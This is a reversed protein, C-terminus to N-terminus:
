RYDYFTRLFEMMVTVTADAFARQHTETDRVGKWPTELQVASITSGDRSGHRETIYGGSFYPDRNPGPNRNSPVAEYGQQEYLAGMSQPGRVLGALSAAASEALSRISSQKWHLPLILSDDPLALQRDVLLYGLELRARPHRHGHLDVLLGKGHQSSVTQKAQDIFSHYEEWMRAAASDDQAAELINHNPDLKRRHVTSVILHPVKGTRSQFARFIAQGLELSNTDYREGTVAIRDPLTPPELIGGHPVSIILPLDGVTYRIYGHIGILEEGPTPSNDTPLAQHTVFFTFCFVGWVARVIKM